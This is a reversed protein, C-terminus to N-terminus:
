RFLLVGVAVVVDDCMAHCVLLETHYLLCLSFTARQCLATIRVSPLFWTTPTSRGSRHGSITTTRLRGYILGFLPHGVRSTTSIRLTLHTCGDRITFGLSLLFCM